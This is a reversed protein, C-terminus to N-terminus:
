FGSAQDVVGAYAQYGTDTPHIDQLPGCVATLTCITTLELGPHPAGTPNFTSLPNAFVARYKAATAAQLSNLQTALADTGDAAQTALAANGTQTFVQNFVAPYLPNYTGIVIIEHKVGGEQRLTNLTSDLNANITAFVTPASSQVCTLSIVGGSTCTGVLGLVDNAGIDITIPSVRKGISQLVDVAAQLQTKGPHNSHIPFPYTTCGTTANTANILTSSTEGPCGLNVTHVGLTNAGFLGGFVNVYGTSFQTDPSTCNTPACAGVKAAQYGFALSDGLALYTGNAVPPQIVPDTQAAQSAPAAVFLLAILTTLVCLGSLRPRSAASM